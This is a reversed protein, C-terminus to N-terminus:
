PMWRVKPELANMLCLMNAVGVIAGKLHRKYSENSYAYWPGFGTGGNQKDKNWLTRAFVAAWEPDFAKATFQEENLGLEKAHISSLQFMGLDITGDAHRDGVAQDYYDSEGGITAVMLVLNQPERWGHDYLLRAVDRPLWQTGNLQGM